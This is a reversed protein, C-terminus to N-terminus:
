CLAMAATFSSRRAAREHPPSPFARAVYSRGCEGSGCRRWVAAPTPSPRSAVRTKDGLIPVQKGQAEARREM